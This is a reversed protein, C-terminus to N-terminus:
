IWKESKEPLFLIYDVCRTNKCGIFVPEIWSKVDRTLFGYCFLVEWADSKRIICRMVLIETYIHCGPFTPNHQLWINTTIFLLIHIIKCLYYPLTISFHKIFRFLCVLYCANAVSWWVAWRFIGRLDQRLEAM